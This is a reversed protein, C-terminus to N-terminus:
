PLYSTCAGTAGSRSCRVAVPTGLPAKRDDQTRLAFENLCGLYCTTMATDECSQAARAYRVAVGNVPQPGCYCGVEVTACDADTACAALDTPPSKCVYTAEAGPTASCAGLLIGIALTGILPTARPPSGPRPM